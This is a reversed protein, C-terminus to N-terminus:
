RRGRVPAPAIAALARRRHCSRGGSSDIFIGTARTRRRIGCAGHCRDARDDGGGPACAGSRAARGDVADLHRARGATDGGGCAAGCRHRGSRAQARARRCHGAGARRRLDCLGAHPSRVAGHAHERLFEAM